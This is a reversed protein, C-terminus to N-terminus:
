FSHKGLELTLSGGGAACASAHRPPPGALPPCVADTVDLWM